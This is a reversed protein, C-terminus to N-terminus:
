HEEKWKELWNCAGGVGADCYSLCFTPKSPVFEVYLEAKDKRNEIFEVADQATPFNRTKPLARPSAKKTGNKNYKHVPYRDPDQWRQEETCEPIDDPHTNNYKDLDRITKIILKRTTDDTWSLINYGQVGGSPYDRGGVKGQTWDRMIFGIAAVTEETGTIPIKNDGDGLRYGHRLLYLYINAQLIYDDFLETQYKSVSVSKWDWMINKELDLADFQGSITYMKGDIEMDLYIRQELIYNTDKELKSEVYKHLANGIFSYYLKSAPLRITGSSAGEIHKQLWFSKAGLKFKSGSIFSKAGRGGYDDAIMAKFLPTPINSDNYYEIM